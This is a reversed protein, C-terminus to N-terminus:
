RKITIASGQTLLTYVERADLPALSICGANELEPVPNAASGHICVDNGLHMWYGGYPNRPDTAAMFKSDTGVYSHDRRREIITFSGESPTPQNGVSVPFRGAYLEGLFLTLEGRTLNVEARFPGNVVKMEMGALVVRSDGMRNISALAEPSIRYKNAISELTDGPAVVFRSELLHRKSYIVEGALADLLDILDLHEERTMEIHNFYPSMKALAERLKGDNAMKLSETRAAAYTQGTKPAASAGATGSSGASSGPTAAGPPLLGVSPFADGAGPSNSGQAALSGSLTGSLDQAGPLEPMGPLGSASPGSTTVPIDGSFGPLPPMSAAPAKNESMLVGPIPVTNGEQEPPLELDPIKPIDNGLGSSLKSNPDNPDEAKANPAGPLSLNPPSSTGPTEPLTGLTTSAFDNAPPPPVISPPALSDLGGNPNSQTLPPIEVMAGDEVSLGMENENWEALGPPLTPEPANLAVYAGYCVGLLLVVVVATKITQM